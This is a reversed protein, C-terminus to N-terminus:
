GRQAEACLHQTADAEVSVPRLGVASLRERLQGEDFFHHPLGEEPGDLPVFTSPEVQAFRQGQNRLTPVSVYFWAGRAMVRSIEALAANVQSAMAHHISQCAVVVSFEGDAFPLVEFLNGLVLKASPVLASAGRLAAPSSDLGVVDYGHDAFVRLHRGTGCGIDLVRGGIGAVREAFRVVLPHAEAFIAADTRFIEDWPNHPFVDAM